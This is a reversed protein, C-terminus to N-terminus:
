DPAGLHQIIKARLEAPKYPKALYDTCGAALARERDGSMAHATLAIIPVAQAVDQRIREVADWGSLLPLSLDLLIVDPQMAGAVAVAELGDRAVVVDYDSAQLIKRALELNNGDDDVVLIRQAM